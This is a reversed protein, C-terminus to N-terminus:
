SVIIIDFLEIYKRIYTVYIRYIVFIFGYNFWYLIERFGINIVKYCMYLVITVDVLVRNLLVIYM